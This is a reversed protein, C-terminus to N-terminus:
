RTGGQGARRAPCPGIHRHVSAHGHDGLPGTAMFASPYFSRMADAVYSPLGCQRRAQDCPSVGQSSSRAPCWGSGAHTASRKSHGAQLPVPVAPRKPRAPRCHFDPLFPPPMNAPVSRGTLQDGSSPADAGSRSRCVRTTTAAWPVGSIFGPRCRRLYRDHFEEHLRNIAESSTGRGASCSPARAGPHTSRPPAIRCREVALAEKLCRSKAATGFAALSYPRSAGRNICM